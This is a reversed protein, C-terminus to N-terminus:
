KREEKQQKQYNALCMVQCYVGDSDKRREFWVAEIDKGAKREIEDQSHKMHARQSGLWKYKGSDFKIPTLSGTQRFLSDVLIKDAQSKTVTKM